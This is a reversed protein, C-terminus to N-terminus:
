KAQLAADIAAGLAEDDPATAPAFRKIVAGDRGIVFKEFNWTIDGGGGAESGVLGRYLESRRPGNVDQKELLPFTVGYNMSCFTAIEDKSGPEQAGFQNCPVGVVVLGDDKKAEYLAQLGAYQPTLGCRSAVNVFLVVKGALTSEPLAKGSLSVLNMTDLKGDDDALAPTALTMLLIFLLYRM